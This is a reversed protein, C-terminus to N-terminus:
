DGDRIEFLATALDISPRIADRSATEPVRLPSRALASTRVPALVSVLPCPATVEPRLVTVPLFGDPVIVLPVLLRVILGEPVM